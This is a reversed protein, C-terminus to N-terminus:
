FRPQAGAASDHTLDSSGGVSSTDQLIFMTIVGYMMAVFFLFLM